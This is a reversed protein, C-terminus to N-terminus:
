IHLVKFEKFGHIKEDLFDIRKIQVAPSGNKCIEAMEEVDKNNGEVWIEVRGDELLRAYGNLKLKEAQEKVYAQYFVGQVTGYVYIRIAKKM